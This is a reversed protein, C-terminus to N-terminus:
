ALKKLINLHFPGKIDQDTVPHETIEIVLLFVDERFIDAALFGALFFFDAADLGLRLLLLFVCVSRVDCNFFIPIPSIISTATHRVPAM